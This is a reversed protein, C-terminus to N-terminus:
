YKAPAKSYQDGKMKFGEKGISRNCMLFLFWASILSTTGSAILVPTNPLPKKQQLTFVVLGIIVVAVITNLCALIFFWTCVSSNSVSRLLTPEAPM